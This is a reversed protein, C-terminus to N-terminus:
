FGYFCVQSMLAELEQEHNRASLLDGNLRDMQASLTLKEQEMENLKTKWETVEHGLEAERTSLRTQLVNIEARLSEIKNQSGRYLGNSANVQEELRNSERLAKEESEHM